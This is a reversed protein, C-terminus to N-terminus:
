CLKKALASREASFLVCRQVLRGGCSIKRRRIAPKRTNRHPQGFQSLTHATMQIYPMSEAKGTIEIVSDKSLTPLVFMLGSIFQSSIDGRVRYTGHSLRGCVTLADDKQKFEFGRELCLQEYVSLSRAFLRKSGRLTIRRGTLLCLPIIFRLTSGSENCFIEDAPQLATYRHEHMTVSNEKQVIDAGLARLAGITATIDASSGVATGPIIEVKM